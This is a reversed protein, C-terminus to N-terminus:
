SKALLAQAKAVAEDMSHAMHVLPNDPHWCNIFGHIKGYNNDLVVHPIGLLTSMIHAHLRDTVVIKGQSLIDVGRQIREAALLNLHKWQKRQIFGQSGLSSHAVRKWFRATSRTSTGPEELWDTIAVTRGPIQFNTLGGGSVEKDSRALVLIDVSAPKRVLEGGLMVAGDTCLITRAGLEKEAINQSRVDRVMLTFDPHRAIRAAVRDRAREDTFQLTQPLQVVRYDRLREIVAERWAQNETWITGFNGGGTLLVQGFPMRRRLVEENYFFIDSSYHVKARIRELYRVEGLWIASDGVNGYDPFDLVATPMSADVVQNLTAAYNQALASEGATM